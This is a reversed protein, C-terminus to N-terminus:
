KGLHYAGDSPVSSPAYGRMFPAVVRYGAAVLHGALTRFGLATDPFGHLCLAIPASGSRGASETATGDPSWSLATLRVTPALVEIRGPETM